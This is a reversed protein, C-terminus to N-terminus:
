CPLTFREYEEKYPQLESRGLQTELHELYSSEGLLRESPLVKRISEVVRYKDAVVTCLSRHLTDKSILHEFQVCHEFLVRLHVVAPDVAGVKVQLSIADILQLLRRFAAAVIMVEDGSVSKVDDKCEWDLLHTGISVLKDLAEGYSALQERTKEDEITHSLIDPIPEFLNKEMNSLKM